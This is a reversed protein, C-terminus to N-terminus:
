VRRDIGGVVTVGDEHLYGVCSPCAIKWIGGQGDDSHYVGPSGECMPCQEHASNEQDQKRKTM